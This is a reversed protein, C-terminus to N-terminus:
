AVPSFGLRREVEDLRKRQAMQESDLMILMTNQDKKLSRLMKGHSELTKSHSELTKSQSSFMKSHSELIRSHSELIQSHSELIQGHRELERQIPALKQDLKQDLKRDLLDSIQQLNLDSTM